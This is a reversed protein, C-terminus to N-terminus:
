ALDRDEFFILGLLVGIASFMAGYAIVHGTYAAYQEFPLPLDRIVANGADFLDLQPTVVDLANTLFGILRNGEAASAAIIATLHGLFYIILIATLNALIPMKTALAVALSTLVAVQCFGIALGPAAEGADRVWFLMGRVLDGVSGASFAERARAIWAPDPPEQYGIPPDLKEKAIVVWVLNWGLTLSMALAALTIGAFKGLIFDRRQIPKSMLTVATRGEIEDSVSIAAVLVGFVLPVLMAAVFCFEKLVKIDEGFTFFPLLTMGWMVVSAGVVLLWFMPQRVGERFAALAVAQGKPWPYELTAFAIVFFDLILQLHALSAFCWGARTLVKLDNNANLYLGLLVGVIGVAVLGGVWFGLTRARGRPILGVASAWPVALLGQALALLVCTGLLTTNM